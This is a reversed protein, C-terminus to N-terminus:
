AAFEVYDAELMRSGNGAPVRSGTDRLAGPRRRAAERVTPAQREDGGLRFYAMARNLLEAQASLEEATAALEESASANQQSSQSLQGMAMNIQSIGSGQEESASSIEQVLDSTKSISPIIVELLAGAREALAVSGRATESIEQAAVQSREALKRVEAAVVAFGKGHEGARAAEIAANLALLNTQYAIDDVIGIKEAISRMAEVTSRVAEGGERAEKVAKSAMGDTLKANDSNQCVSASMQEISASTEEISAAQEGAGQSLSQATASVEESSSGIADSTGRVEAIVGALKSLTGNLAEKLEGLQGRYDGQVSCTLDGRELAAIVTMVEALPGVIADLTGNVGEVIRRFDGQHRTADARTELRGATAAQALLGTDAILAKINTRVQEVNDNIFRKKGPFVELPADLNGEGFARICAMAKKKVSIHGAVMENVGEAMTKYAGRFRSSEIVADIDGKDHESSMRHMEAIFDRVNGRLQEVTDNIFSKKGPFTELPADFDGEAFAQVCSMAKKKVEIHGAVMGNVGRGVEAFAGKLATTDIVVDIDGRDHEHSMHKMEDMLRQLGLTMDRLAAMLSSSDGPRLTIPTSLDGAAVRTAVEVAAGPEGGLVRMLGRTTLLGLIGVGLLVLAAMGGLFLLASDHIQRVAEGSQRALAEALALHAEFRTMLMEGLPQIAQYAEQVDARRHGREAEFIEAIRREMDVFLAREEEFLRRSREDTAKAAAKELGSRLARAAEGTSKALEAARAPEEGAVLKTIALQIRNFQERHTVVELVGPLDRAGGGAAVALLRNLQSASIAALGLVGLLAVLVLLTMRRTVNM